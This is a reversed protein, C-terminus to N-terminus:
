VTRGTLRFRIEKGLPYLPLLDIRYQKGSFAQMLVRAQKLDAREILTLAMMDAIIKEHTPDPDYKGTLSKIFEFQIQWAELEGHVSLATLWGQRLHQVEHVILSLAYADDKGTTFDPHLDIRGLVTWRAGTPQPRVRLTVNRQRLYERTSQGVPGCAELRAVLTELWSANM